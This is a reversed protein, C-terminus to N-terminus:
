LKGEYHKKLNELEQEGTKKIEDLQSQYKQSTDNKEYEILQMEKTLELM